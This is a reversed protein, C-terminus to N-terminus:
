VLFDLKQNEVLFSMFEFDLPHDLDFCTHPMEYILSSTTIAKTLGQEFFLRRFIYFSANLEYVKPASQRTFFEGHKCLNYYGSGDQEVMNFYPNRNAKNVSFINLAHTDDDIAQLASELDIVTRLPSTIDLDIIYDFTTGREEEEFKVLDAIVDIKGATDGALIGPRKYSTTIGCDAATQIINECDTSLGIVCDKNKAFKKATSITYEVLPKGALLKTNKGPIGKSGKRGCITILIKMSM